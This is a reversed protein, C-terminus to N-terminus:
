PQSKKDTIQVPTASIDAHFEKLSSRSVCLYDYEKNKLMKLNDDTAIGADM